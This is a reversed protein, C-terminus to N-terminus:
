WEVEPYFMCTLNEINKKNNKKNNCKNKKIIVNLEIVISVFIMSSKM